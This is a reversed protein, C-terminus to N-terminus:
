SLADILDAIRMEIVNTQIKADKAVQRAMKADGNDQLAAAAQKLKELIYRVSLPTRLFTLNDSRWAALLPTWILAAPDTTEPGRASYPIKAPCTCWGQRM